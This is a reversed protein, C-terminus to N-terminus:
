MRVTEGRCVDGDAAPLAAKESTGLCDALHEPKLYVSLNGKEKKKKLQSQLAAVQKIWEALTFPAKYGDAYSPVSATAAECGLFRVGPYLRSQRPPFFTLTQPGSTNNQGVVNATLRCRWIIKNGTLM